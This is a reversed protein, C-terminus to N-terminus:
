RPKRFPHAETNFVFDDLSVLNPDSFILYFYKLTEGLWFSEMRDRQPADPNTVDSIVANALPTTTHATIAEFMEWAVDQLREDGTLRYLYFVSEIAEPRLKYEYEYIKTFGDQPDGEHWTCDNADPCPQMHFKEPM